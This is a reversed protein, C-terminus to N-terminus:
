VRNLRAINIYSSVSPSGGSPPNGIGRGYFFGTIRYSRGATFTVQEQRIKPPFHLGDNGTMEGTSFSFYSTAHNTSVASSNTSETINVAFGSRSSSTSSGSTQMMVTVVYTGSEKITTGLIDLSIQGSSSGGMYTTSSPIGFKDTTIFLHHPSSSTFTSMNVSAQTYSQNLNDTSSIKGIQNAGIMDVVVGGSRITLIASSGSGSVTITANGSTSDFNLQSLTLTNATIHTGSLTGTMVSAFTAFSGSLKDVSLSGIQASALAGNKIFATDIYVGAPNNNGDTSTLVTFPVINNGHPNRITVQSAEFIINSSSTNNQLNNSSDAILYMGAIAGNANVSLGHAARASTGDVVANSVSTISSTNQGVTTTLSSISTANAGEASVRVTREHAIAAALSTDSRSNSSNLSALLTGRDTAIANSQNTVTIIDQQASATAATLTSGTFSSTGVLNVLTADRGAVWANNAANRWYVQGDDTDFWLDNATIASSGDGRTTPASSSRIVEGAGQTVLNTIASYGPLDALTQSLSTMVAAIDIATTANVSNAFPGRIDSTSVFRVWYYFTQNYDASDSWVNATTTDALVAASVDNSTGRYIEAFAFNGFQPADWSVVVTTFAASASVGTPVPPITTDTVTRPKFDVVGTGANPDFPNDLLEEALGSDILERLTIARDRPDGRRGLRIELAEQISVMHNKLQPDIRSPVSVISPVKTGSTAM